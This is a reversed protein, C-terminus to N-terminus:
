ADSGGVLELRRKEAVILSRIFEAQSQYRKDDEVGVFALLDPHLKIQMVKTHGLPKRANPHREDVM